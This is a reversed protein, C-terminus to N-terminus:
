LTGLTPHIVPPAAPESRLPTNACTTRGFASAVIQRATAPHAQKPPLRRLVEDLKADIIDLKDCIDRLTGRSRHHPIERVRKKM